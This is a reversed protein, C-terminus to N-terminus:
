DNKISKLYGENRKIPSNIEFIQPNKILHTVYDSWPCSDGLDAILKTILELDSQEDVTIRFHSFDTVNKYNNSHFTPKNFYSSNRWIYPTVHEKDSSLAAERWAQELASYKFVEVDMGDPFTPNLTNSAYDLKQDICLAIVDDIVTADILPCDSTLRVIYDPQEPLATKYFRDLVNDTNGRFYQIGMQDCIRCIESVDEELTTAM